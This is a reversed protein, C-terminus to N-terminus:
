RKITAIAKDRKTRLKFMFVKIEGYSTACCHLCCFLLLFVVEPVNKGSRTAIYVLQSTAEIELISYQASLFCRKSSPAHSLCVSPCCGRKIDEHSQPPSWWWWWTIWRSLAICQSIFNYVSSLSGSFCLAWQVPHIFWIVRKHILFVHPFCPLHFSCYYCTCNLHLYLFILSDITCYGLKFPWTRLLSHRSLFWDVKFQTAFWPSCLHTSCVSTGDCMPRSSICVHVNVVTHKRARRTTSTGLTSTPRPPRYPPPPPPEATSRNWWRGVAHRHGPTTVRDVRPRKTAVREIRRRTLRARRARVGGRDRELDAAHLLRSSQKYQPQYVATNDTFTFLEVGHEVWRQLEPIKPHGFVWLILYYFTKVCLKITLIYQFSSEMDSHKNSRISTGTSTRLWLKM